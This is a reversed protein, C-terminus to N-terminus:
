KASQKAQWKTWGVFFFCPEGRECELEDQVETLTAGEDISGNGGRKGLDVEGDRSPKCARDHEELLIEAFFLYLEIQRSVLAARGRRCPEIRFLVVKRVEGDRKVKEPLLWHSLKAKCAGTVRVRGAVQVSAREAGGVTAAVFGVLAWDIADKAGGLSAPSSGKSDIGMGDM